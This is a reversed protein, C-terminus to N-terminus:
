AYGVICSRYGFDDELPQYTTEKAPPFAQRLKNTRVSALHTEDNIFNEVSLLLLLLLIM